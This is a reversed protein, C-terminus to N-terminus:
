PSLSAATARGLREMAEVAAQRLAESHQVLAGAHGTSLWRIESGTWLEHLKQVEDPFVYGDRRAGVLVAAAPCRPLPHRDLDTLAIYRSLRERAEEAGGEGSGLREFNISRSLLGRTFVPVASRGVGFLAAAIPRPWRAAVVAAMSAGMSFGTVGLRTHGEAALWALLSRAEDMMGLAMLMHESVTRIATGKQGPPRRLGYLPNELLLVGIGAAEVMPQFLRMRSTFGEEGSAALVVYMPQEPAPRRTRPLIERVHASRAAEPLEATPSSFTGDRIALNGEIRPPAAWTIAIPQPPAEFRAGSLVRDVQAADGFGDTFLRRRIMSFALVYDIWHVSSMLAGFSAGRGIWRFRSSALTTALRAGTGRIYAM